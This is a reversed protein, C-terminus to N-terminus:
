RKIKQWLFLIDLFSVKIDVNAYLWLSSAVKQKVHFLVCFIYMHIVEHKLSLSPLLYLDFSAARILLNLDIESQKNSNEIHIRQLSQQPRIIYRPNTM